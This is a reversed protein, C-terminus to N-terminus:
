FVISRYGGWPKFKRDKPREYLYAKTLTHYKKATWCPCASSFGACDKCGKVVKDPFGLTNVDECQLNYLSTCLDTASQLIQPDGFSLQAFEYWCDGYNCYDPAPPGQTIIPEEATTTAEEEKVTTTAPAEEEVATTAPAEEATTTAEVEQVEETPEAAETPEAEREIPIVQVAGAPPVFPEAPKQEAVPLWENALTCYWMDAFIQTACGAEGGIAPNIRFFEERPINAFAIISDCGEGAYALHFQACAPYAPELMPFPTNIPNDQALVNFSLVGAITLFHLLQMM